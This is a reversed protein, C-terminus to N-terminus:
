LADCEAFDSRYSVRLDFPSQITLKDQPNSNRYLNLEFHGKVRKSVSDAETIVVKNTLTTDAAFSSRDEGWYDGYWTGEYYYAFAKLNHGSSYPVDYQTYFSMPFTGKTWQYHNVSISLNEVWGKTRSGIYSNAGLWLQDIVEGYSGKPQFGASLKADAWTMNNKLLTYTGQKIIKEEVSNYCKAQREAQKLKRTQESDCGVLLAISIVLFLSILIKRM